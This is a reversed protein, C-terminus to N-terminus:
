RIRQEHASSWQKPAQAWNGLPRGECGRSDLRHQNRRVELPPTKLDWVLGFFSQMKLIYFTPDVEWWRFGQRASSQYAHHNNHWGEGMTVVVALQQL